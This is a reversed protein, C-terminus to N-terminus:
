SAGARAALQTQVGTSAATLLTAFSLAGDGMGYLIQVDNDTAVADAVNVVDLKGDHDLDAVALNGVGYVV